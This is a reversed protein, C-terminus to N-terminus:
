AARRINEDPSMAVMNPAPIGAHRVFFDFTFANPQAHRAYDALDVGDAVLDGALYTAWALQQFDIWGMPGFLDGTSLHADGYQDARKSAERYLMEWLQRRSVLRMGQKRYPQRRM